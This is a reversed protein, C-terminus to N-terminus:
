YILERKAGYINLWRDCVLIHKKCESINEVLMHMRETVEVRRMKASYLGIKDAAESRSNQVYQIRRKSARM